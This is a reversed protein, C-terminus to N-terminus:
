LSGAPNAASPPDPRILPALFGETALKEFLELHEHYYGLRFEAFGKLLGELAKM